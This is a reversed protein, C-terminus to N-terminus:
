MPVVSFFRFKSSENIIYNFDETRLDDTFRVEEKEGSCGDGRAVTESNQNSSKQLLETVGDAATKVLAM